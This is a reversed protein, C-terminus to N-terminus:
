YIALHILAHKEAGNGYVALHIEAPSEELLLQIAKRMVTQQDFISKGSDVMVWACLAGGELNGVVPTNSIEGLQMKRRKLVAELVGKGVVDSKDSLKDPFKDLKPLVALIHKATTSETLSSAHQILTALM